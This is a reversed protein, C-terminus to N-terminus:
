PVQSLIALAEAHVRADGAVLIRGGHAANEGRWGTMLGGAAEVIPILAQVDYPKLGAEVVLDLCGAALMCYAYCDGSFRTMRVRAAIADFAPKEHGREFLDPHTSYLAADALRACARTRLPRRGDRDRLEAGFRSGIFREGTWPQDMVGLVPREGDYLAILTGWLPMGTIFARTGDIPDIVWTLGSDGPEFGHEEGYRGDQPRREALLARIAAEADRDAVTVPDYMTGEAGSKDAVALPARFHRRIVEGSADALLHALAILEGLQKPALEAPAHRPLAPATPSM